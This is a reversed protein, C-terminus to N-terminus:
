CLRELGCVCHIYSFAYAGRERSKSKRCGGNFGGDERRGSELNVCDFDEGGWMGWHEAGRWRLGGNAKHRCRLHLRHDSSPGVDGVGQSKSCQERRLKRAM